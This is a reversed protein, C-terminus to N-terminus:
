NAENSPGGTPPKELFNGLRDHASLLAELRRRLDQDGACMRELLANREQLAVKLAENFIALERDSDSKMHNLRRWPETQGMM